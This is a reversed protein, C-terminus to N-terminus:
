RIDGSQRAQLFDFIAQKIVDSVSRGSEAALEDLQAKQGEALYVATRVLGGATRGQYVGGTETPERRGQSAERVREPKQGQRAASVGKSATRSPGLAALDVGALISDAESRRETRKSAM